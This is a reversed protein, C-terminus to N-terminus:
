ISMLFNYDDDNLIPSFGYRGVELRWKVDGRYRFIQCIKQEKYNSTDCMGLQVTYYLSDDISELPDIIYYDSKPTIYNSIKSLPIDVSNEEFLRRYEHEKNWIKDYLIDYRIIFFYISTIVTSISVYILLKNYEGHNHYVMFNYWITFITLVIVQFLGRDEKKSMKNRTKQMKDLQEHFIDISFPGKKLIYEEM